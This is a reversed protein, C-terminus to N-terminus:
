PSQAGCERRKESHGPAEDRGKWESYLVGHSSERISDLDILLGLILSGLVMLGDGLDPGQRRSNSHGRPETSM